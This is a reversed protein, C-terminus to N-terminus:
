AARRELHTRASPPPDFLRGFTELDRAGYAALAVDHDSGAVKTEIRSGAHELILTADAGRDEIKMTISVGTLSDIVRKTM